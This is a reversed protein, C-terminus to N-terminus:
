TLVISQGQDRMRQQPHRIRYARIFSGARAWYYVYYLLSNALLLGADNGGFRRYSSALCILVVATAAIVAVLPFGLLLAAVAAVHLLTFVIAVTAVKSSLVAALSICDGTGHWVERRIFQRLTKPYGHHEAVRAPLHHITGGRQTARISLEYDEGTELAEDFGGLEFFAAREMIFHAGGLYTSPEGSRPSFWMRELWRADRPTSCISGSLSAPRTSLRPAVDAFASRWGEALTVDADLFVLYEGLAQQAGFNRLSGITGTTRVHVTAGHARALAPTDDTSGNDVLIIEYPEDNRMEGHVSKLTQVIFRAENFAPIVFSILPRGQPEPRRAAAEPVELDHTM